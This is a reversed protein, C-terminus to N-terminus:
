PAAPEAFPATLEAAGTAKDYVCALRETGAEGTVTALAVGYRESGFPNVEVAATGPGTLLARCATEVRMRFAAWAEDSSATAAPPAAISALLALALRTPM